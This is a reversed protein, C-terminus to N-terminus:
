PRLGVLIHKLLTMAETLKKTNDKEKHICKMIDSVSLVFMAFRINKHSDDTVSLEHQFMYGARQFSWLSEISLGPVVFLEASEGDNPQNKFVVLKMGDPIVFREFSQTLADNKLEITKGKWIKQPNFVIEKLEQANKVGWITRMIPNITISVLARSSGGYDAHMTIDMVPYRGRPSFEPIEVSEAKGLIRKVSCHEVDRGVSVPWNQYQISM